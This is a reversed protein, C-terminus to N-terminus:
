IIKFRKLFFWIPFFLYILIVTLNIIYTLVIISSNINLRNLIKKDSILESKSDLTYPIRSIMTHPIFHIIDQDFYGKNYNENFTKYNFKEKLGDSKKYYVRIKDKDLIKSLIIRWGYIGAHM